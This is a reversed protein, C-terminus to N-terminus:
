IVTLGRRLRNMPKAGGETILFQDELNFRAVGDVYLPVEFALVMGPQIEVQSGASIFPWQESFVSNGVGHGFHGRSYSPVGERALSESVVKHVKGLLNGPFLEAEGSVFAREVIAHLRQQDSTPSGFVFNRSMDAGYGDVACVMDAKAADGVSITAAAGRERDGVFVFEKTEVTHGTGRSANKVGTRYLSILDTTTMGVSANSLMHSMGAESYEIGTRLLAVEKNSKIARLRDLVPTGDAITFGSLKTEIVPLDAAPVFALDLGVTGRGIGLDAMLSSLAGASFDLDFTEPRRFNQPRKLLLLAAELREELPTDVSQTDISVHEIWTPHSRLVADPVHEAFSSIDYDPVVLGLPIDSRRPVLAFCAGARRFLSAPAIPAGTAYRIAEPECLILADLGAREMLESARARDLAGSQTASRGYEVDVNAQM